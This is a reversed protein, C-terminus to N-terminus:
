GANSKQRRLIRQTNKSGTRWFFGLRWPE